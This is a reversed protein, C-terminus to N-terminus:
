LVPLSKIKLLLNMLKSIFESIISILILKSSYASIGKILFSKDCIFPIVLISTESFSLVYEQSSISFESYKAFPLPAFHSHNYFHSFEPASLHNILHSIQCFIFIVIESVALIDSSSIISKRLALHVAFSIVTKSFSM